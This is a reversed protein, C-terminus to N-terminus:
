SAAPLITGRCEGLGIRRAGPREAYGRLIIEDGNELFTRIEGHPLRVPDAGRSTLELLCSRSEDTDGSVTGSGLLDGPQLNCGNSTHHTLLQGLTWYMQRFNAASLRHPPLGATRMKPTLLWAELVVDLGGRAADHADSLYPLPAPDGAPRAAAAARFPELAEMTVVWPSITTAFNKALFPGLPQYEWSQLDRASWDNLLVVGFLHQAADAIPVPTGLANGPGVIAGLEIEYDLSRTPGFDPRAHQPDKSQGHPRRVAGPSVGVSSARGHYGIPVWKYNSLLPHDPRFLKGVRTAHHISAYFDTYDGIAAPLQMTVRDQPVLCSRVRTQNEGRCTDAGLLESLRRRLETWVVPGAALLDNLSSQECLRTSASPLLGAAAAAALDLIETGIAVGIRAHSGPGARFVGFPLNQLPFDASPTNASEVWSVRSPDHTENPM